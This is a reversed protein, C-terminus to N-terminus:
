QIVFSTFYVAEVGKGKQGEGNLIKRIIELTSERLKDKGESTMLTANDQSSFLTVLDNRVAPENAKLQELIAADRAMAEVTIQLYRASGEGGFNVVFAPDFKYFLPPAKKAGSKDAKDDKEAADAAAVPAATKHKFAFFAGAGGGLLVVVGIIIFLLKSKKKGGAPKDTGPKDTGEKGAAAAPPQKQAAQASM